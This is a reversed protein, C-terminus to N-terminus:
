NVYGRLCRVKEEVLEKIRGRYTSPCKPNSTRSVKLTEPDIWKSVAGGGIGLITRREEMMLINYIGETGPKCYGINEQNALIRRQRYLYYPRYGSDKLDLAAQSLWHGLVGENMKTKMISFDWTAARKPALTHLTINEPTFEKLCTLSYDWDEPNEGPLGMILDMNLCPIGVRRVLSVAQYIQDVRHKRGILKLTLENMTQPNVSVRNVKMRQMVLLKEPDLTEPRGAEVTFERHGSASFHQNLQKLLKELEQPSLVTPTGGGIYIFEAELGLDRCAKGLEQVEFRLAELFGPLLRGHSEMPYAAFSCYDCRTPCFPIGVYLGIKRKESLFYPRQGEGIEMLLVAKDSDLRYHAELRRRAEEPSFGADRLYHYIKTPRVGTLIGWPANKGTSKRFLELVMRRALEKRRLEVDTPQYREEAIERDSFSIRVPTADGQRWIGEVLIVGGKIEEIRVEIEVVDRLRQQDLSLAEMSEFPKEEEIFLAEPDLALVMNEMNKKNKPLNSWLKYLAM